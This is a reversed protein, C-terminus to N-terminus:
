RSPTALVSSKMASAEFTAWRSRRPEQAGPHVALRRRLHGPVRVPRGIRDISVGGAAFRAGPRIGRRQDGERRSCRRGCGGAASAATSRRAPSGAGSTGAPACAGAGPLRLKARVAGDALRWTATGSVPVDRAFRARRFRFRVVRTM